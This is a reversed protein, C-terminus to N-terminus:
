KLKTIVRGEDGYITFTSGDKRPKLQKTLM